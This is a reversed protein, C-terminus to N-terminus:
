TTTTSEAQPLSTRNENRGQVAFLIPFSAAFLYALVWVAWMAWFRVPDETRIATTVNATVTGSFYSEVVSLCFFAAIILAFFLAGTPRFIWSGVVLSAVAPSFALACAWPHQRLVGVLSLKGNEELPIM